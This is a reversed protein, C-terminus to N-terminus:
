GRAMQGVRYGGPTPPNSTEVNEVAGNAEGRQRRKKKPETPAVYQAFLEKEREWQQKQKRSPVLRPQQSFMM